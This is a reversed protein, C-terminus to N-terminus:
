RRPWSGALVLWDTAGTTTPEHVLQYELLLPTIVRCQCTLALQTIRWQRCCCCGTASRGVARYRQIRQCACGGPVTIRRWFVLLVELPGALVM